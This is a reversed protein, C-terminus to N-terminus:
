CVPPPGGKFLYNILYVVDAVTVKGDCNADGSKLPDPLPGGKFLYNIEYIVDSVTVKNDRNADGRFFQVYKITVYDYDTGSGYSEGAIYINNSNDLAMAYAMDGNHAPGDYRLTWVNQGTSDYKLTICDQYGGLFSYGTVYVNGSGDLGLDYAGDEYKGPGNYTRVWATDGDPLYKITVCKLQERGAVYVNGFHDIATKQGGWPSIWKEAGNADYKITGSLGTVYVYGSDDIAIDLAQDYTNGPGNYRRVWATDGNPYYKITAYDDFTTWDYSTGTVYINGFSDLSMARVWDPLNGTGNYRRTWLQSGSSDYKVTLYDANTSDYFSYGSVYVNGSGDVKLAVAIDANDDPGDYTRVWATEGDPYYKITTFDTNLSDVNSSGTVYVNGRNDLVLASAQDFGNRPGNWRRVWATDGNPNYKITAYDYDSGSGYSSGTVYVNGSYDVVLARAQDDLNGPGNYLRVWATDVEQAFLPLTFILIISFVLLMKKM